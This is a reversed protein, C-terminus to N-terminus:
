RALGFRIKSGVVFGGAFLLKMQLRKTFFTIPRDIGEVTGLLRGRGISIRMFSARYQQTLLGCVVHWM